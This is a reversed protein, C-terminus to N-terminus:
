LNPKERLCYFCTGCAPAWNLVVHDGAQVSTVDPGVAEVVGAGEHGAVVPMPHRTAGSVLHYDSHCVGAAALRVLVEGSRPEDLELDLVEFPTSPQFLVAAQIKMTSGCEVSEM